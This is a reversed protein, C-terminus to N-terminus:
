REERFSSATIEIVDGSQIELALKKLSGVDIPGTVENVSESPGWEQIRPIRLSTVNEGILTVMNSSLDRFVLKVTGTKWAFSISLLTWDHM